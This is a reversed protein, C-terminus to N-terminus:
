SIEVADLIARGVRIVGSEYLNDWTKVLEAENATLEDRWDQTEPDNSEGNWLERMEEQRQDANM